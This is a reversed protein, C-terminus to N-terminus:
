RPPFDASPSEFYNLLVIFIQYHHQQHQTTVAMSDNIYSFSGMDSQHISKRGEAVMQKM